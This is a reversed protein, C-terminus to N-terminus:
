LPLLSLFAQLKISDHTVVNTGQSVTWSRSFSKWIELRTSKGCRRYYKSSTCATSCTTYMTSSFNPNPTPQCIPKSVDSGTTLLLSACQQLFLVPSKVPFHLTSVPVSNKWECELAWKNMENNFSGPLELTENDRLVRIKGIFDSAVQDIPEIHPRITRPQM